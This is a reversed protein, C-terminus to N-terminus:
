NRQGRASTKEKNIIDGTNEDDPKLYTGKTDELLEELKQLM